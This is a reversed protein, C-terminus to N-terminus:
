RDNWAASFMRKAISLKAPSPTIDNLLVAFEGEIVDRRISKRYSSCGKHFCM